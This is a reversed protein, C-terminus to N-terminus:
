WRKEMAKQVFVQATMLMFPSVAEAEHIEKIISTHCDLQEEPLSTCNSGTGALWGQAVTVDRGVRVDTLPGRNWRQRGARGATQQIKTKLGNQKRYLALQM